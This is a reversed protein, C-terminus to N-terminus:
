APGLREPEDFDPGSLAATLRPPRDAGDDSAWLALSDWAAYGEDTVLLKRALM